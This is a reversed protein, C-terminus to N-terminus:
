HHRPPYGGIRTNAHTEKEGGFHFTGGGGTDLGLNSLGGEMARGGLRAEHNDLSEAEDCSTTALAYRTASIVIENKM